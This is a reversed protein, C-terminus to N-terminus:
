TPRPTAAPAAKRSLVYGAALTTAALALYRLGTEAFYRPISQGTFPLLAVLDLLWSIAIWLVTILVAERLFRDSVGLFYHAAALGGVVAGIVIMLTKFFLLDQEMVPLLPIAALYPILWIVVGYAARKLM